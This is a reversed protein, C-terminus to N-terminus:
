WLLQCLNSYDDTWIRVPDIEEQAIRSTSAKVITELRLFEEDRTLLIWDAAYLCDNDADSSIRVGDLGFEDALQWIVPRFDLYRNTIHVAIIGGSRVHRTYIDFAEKTLLHVPPADGNFADLALVDFDQPDESELSARADGLVIDVEARCDAVFSFYGGGTAALEVMAPNIEYFRYYDGSRGYAAVTGAGLGVVGVRMQRNCPEASQYRPHNTICLGIGSRKGYYTTPMRRHAEDQQLQFGHLTQAHYLLRRYDSQGYSGAETVRLVGYFNRRMALINADPDGVPLHEGLSLMRVVSLAADRHKQPLRDILLFFPAIALLVVLTAAPVRFAWGWKPVNLFSGHDRLAVATLAVGCVFYGIYLEWLGNFLCPAMIGVFIGGLAGGISVFLYFQTLYMSKPKLRVLEGHCLMCCIFLAVYYVMMQEIIGAGSVDSTMIALMKLMTRAVFWMSVCAAGVFLLRCYLWRSSFCLIFTLLYISLPLVWLFPIVAVEESIQNITALLVTSAGAALVLWLLRQMRTPREHKGSETVLGDSEANLRIQTKRHRCLQLAVYGCCLVFAVYLGFWIRSQLSLALNPEILFPYSLLALLSGANSLAYLRYPSRGPFVASFWAQLLSSTASLIFFPLAVSITLLSVVRIIPIDSGAPKWVAGPLLPSPWVFSQLVLLIVSGGLLLLHTKGQRRASLKSVIRHSYYYGGTLLVQFFLMCTTWVAPIGGFWPLIHKAIILQVQFLLLASLFVTLAYIAM